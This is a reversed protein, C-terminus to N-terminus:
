IRHCSQFLHAYMNCIAQFSYEWIHGSYEGMTMSGHIVKNFFFFVLYFLSPLVFAIGFLFLTKRVSRRIHDLEQEKTMLRFRRALSFIIVPGSCLIVFVIIVNIFMSM